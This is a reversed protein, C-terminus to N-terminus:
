LLNYHHVVPHQWTYLVPFQGRPIFHLQFHLMYLLEATGLVKPAENVIDWSLFKVPKTQMNKSDLFVVGLVM